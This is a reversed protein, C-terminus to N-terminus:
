RSIQVPASARFASRDTKGEYYVTGVGSNASTFRLVLTMQMELDANLRIEDCSQMTQAKYLTDASGHSHTRRTKCAHIRQGQSPLSAFFCRVAGYRAESYRTSTM